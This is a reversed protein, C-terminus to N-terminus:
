SVLGGGRLGGEDAIGVVLAFDVEAVEVDGVVVVMPFVLPGTSWTLM